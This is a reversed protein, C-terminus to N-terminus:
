NLFKCDSLSGAWNTLPIGGKDKCFQADERQEVFSVKAGVMLFVLVIGIFGLVIKETLDM